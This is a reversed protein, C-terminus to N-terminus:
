PARERGPRAPDTIPNLAAYSQTAAGFSPRQDALTCGFGESAWAHQSALLGLVTARYGGSDADVHLYPM